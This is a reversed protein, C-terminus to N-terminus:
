FGSEISFVGGVISFLIAMIRKIFAGMIIITVDLHYNELVFVYIGEVVGIGNISIPVVASLGGLIVVWLAALFPIVSSLAYYIMWVATAQFIQSLVSLSFGFLLRKAWEQAQWEPLDMRNELSGYWQKVRKRVWSSGFYLGLGLGSLSIFVIVLEWFWRVAKLISPELTIATGMRTIAALMMVLTILGLVRDFVISFIAKRLRVTKGLLAARVGDGGIGTPLFNNSFLGIGYIKLLDIFPITRDGLIIGWRLVVIVHSLLVSVLSISIPWWVIQNLLIKGQSWDFRYLLWVTLGVTISAQIIRKAINRINKKRQM